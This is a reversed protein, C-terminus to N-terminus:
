DESTEETDDETDDYGDDETDDETDDGYEDNLMALCASDSGSHRGLAFAAAIVGGLVMIPAAKKLVTLVKNPKKEDKVEEVPTEEIFEEEHVDGVKIDEEPIEIVETEKKNMKSM